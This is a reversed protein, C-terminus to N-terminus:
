LAAQEPHDQGLTEVFKLTANVATLFEDNLNM